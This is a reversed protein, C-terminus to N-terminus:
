MNNARTKAADVAAMADELARGSIRKANKIISALAGEAPLLKSSPIERVSKILDKQDDIKNRDTLADPSGTILAVPTCATSATKGKSIFGGPTLSFDQVQYLEQDGVKARVIEKSIVPVMRLGKEVVLKINANEPDAFQVFFGVSGDTASAVQNIVATAGDIHRINTARGLGDPDISQLYAFSAASGSAQPPLVFPLRRAFGLVDGYSQLRENKTVMWLGECAIDQRIIVVDKGLQPKTAIERALVDLQVFGINTPQNTVKVINDLTGNSTTCRYGQFLMDSLPGPIPPCFTTHYAGKEGGTLISKQAMAPTAVAMLAAILFIRKM